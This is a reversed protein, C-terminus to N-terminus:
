ELARVRLDSDIQFIAQNIPHAARLQRRERACRRTFQAFQRACKQASGAILKVDANIIGSPQNLLEFSVIRTGSYPVPIDPRQDRKNFFEVMGQM